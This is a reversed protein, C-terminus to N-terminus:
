RTKKRNQKRQTLKSLYETKKRQCERKLTDIKNKITRSFWLNDEKHNVITKM